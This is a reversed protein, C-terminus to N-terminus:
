AACQELVSTLQALPPSLDNCGAPVTAVLLTDFGRRIGGSSRRFRCRKNGHLGARPKRRKRWIQWRDNASHRVPAPRHQPQLGNDGCSCAETAGYFNGDNDQVLPAYPYERDSGDFSYLTTLVGIEIKVEIGLNCRREDMVEVPSVFARPFRRYGRRARLAGQDHPRAVRFLLGDMEDLGREAVTGNRRSAPVEV